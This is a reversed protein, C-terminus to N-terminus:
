LCIYIYITIDCKGIAYDIVNIIRRNHRVSCILIWDNGLSDYLLLRYLYM